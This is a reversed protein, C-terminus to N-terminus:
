TAAKKSAVRSAPKVSVSATLYKPRGRPKSGAPSSIVGRGVCSTCVSKRARNAANSFARCFRHVPDDHRGQRLQCCLKGQVPWAMNHRKSAFFRRSQRIAIIGHAERQCEVINNFRTRSQNSGIFAVHLRKQVERLAPGHIRRQKDVAVGTNGTGRSRSEDDSRSQVGRE